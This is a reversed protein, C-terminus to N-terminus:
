KRVLYFFEELTYSKSDGAEHEALRNYFGDIENKTYHIDDAEDIIKHLEERVSISM